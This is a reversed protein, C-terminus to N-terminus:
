VTVKVDYTEFPLPRATGGGSLAASMRALRAAAPLPVRSPLFAEARGGAGGCGDAGTWRAKSLQRQWGARPRCQSNQIAAAMAAWPMIRCGVCRHDAAAQQQRCCGVCSVKAAPVLKVVNTTDMVVNTTDRFPRQAMAGRSSAGWCHDLCQVLHLRVESRPAAPIAVGWEVQSAAFPVSLCCLQEQHLGWLCGSAAVHAILHRQM